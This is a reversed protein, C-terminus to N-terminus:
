WVASSIIISLNLFSPNEERVVICRLTNGIMELFIFQRSTAGVPEPLVSAATKGTNVISAWWSCLVPVILAIYM